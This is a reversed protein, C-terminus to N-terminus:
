FEISLMMINIADERPISKKKSSRRFKTLNQVLRKYKLQRKMQTRKFISIWLLDKGKAKGKKEIVHTYPSLVIALPGSSTRASSGVQHSGLSHDKGEHSMLHTTIPWLVHTCSM